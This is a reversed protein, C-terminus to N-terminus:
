DRVHLEARYELFDRSVLRLEALRLKLQAELTEFRSWDEQRPLNDASQVERSTRARCDRVERGFDDVTNDDGRRLHV